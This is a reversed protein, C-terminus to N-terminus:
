PSNCAETGDPCLIKDALQITRTDRASAGTSDRVEVTVELLKGLFREYATALDTAGADLQYRLGWISCYSAEDPEFTFVFAVPPVPAVDDVIRSSIATTSGSRRLNKMRASIWIHHGGQPGKELQLVQGANLPAYSTQGTGLIVEPPGHRAPRCIDPPASAWGAEYDELEADAVESGVCAGAVCTQPADCRVGVAPAGGAAPLYLCRGEVQVRLLKRPGSVLRASALRTVVPADGNASLAEATVDVRAGVAGTVAIEKPLGIGTGPLALLTEDSVVIRDKKVVLHLRSVLAGFDDAQVGVVLAGDAVTEHDGPCAALGIPLAVAFSLVRLVM